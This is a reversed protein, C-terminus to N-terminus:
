GRAAHRGRGHVCSCGGDRADGGAGGGGRIQVRGNSYRTTSGDCCCCFCCTSARRTNHKNRTNRAARASVQRSSSSSSSSSSSTAGGGGSPPVKDCMASARADRHCRADRWSSRPAARGCRCDNAAPATRAAASGARVSWFIRERRRVRGRESRCACFSGLQECRGWM